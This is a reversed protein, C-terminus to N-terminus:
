IQIGSGAIVKWSTNSRYWVRLYRFRGDIKHVSYSAQLEINLAVNCIDENITIINRDCVEINYINMLGSRYNELDIEKTITQGNPANFILNDHLLKDLTNIDSKKMAEVLSNECEIIQEEQTTM